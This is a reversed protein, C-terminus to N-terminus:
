VDLLSITEIDKRTEPLFVAQTDGHVGNATIRKISMGKKHLDERWERKYVWFRLQDMSAFGFNLRDLLDTWTQRIKDDDFPPPHRKDENMEIRPYSGVPFATYLGEGEKNEIRYITVGKM